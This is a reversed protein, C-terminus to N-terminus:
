DSNEDDQRDLDEIIVGLMNLIQATAPRGGLHKNLSSLNCGLIESFERSRVGLRKRVRKLAIKHPIVDGDDGLIVPLGHSSKPHNCTVKM